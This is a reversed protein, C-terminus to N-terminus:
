KPKLYEKMGGKFDMINVFGKRLLEIAALEGANCKDHACYVIIPVEYIELKGKKIYNHLKKYNLEIVHKMWNFLEQQSM